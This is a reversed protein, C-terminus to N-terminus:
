LAEVIAQLLHVTGRFEDEGSDFAREVTFWFPEGAVLERDFAAEVEIVRNFEGSDVNRAAALRQNPLENPRFRGLSPAAFRIAFAIPGPEVGRSAEAMLVLRLRVRTGPASARFEARVHRGPTSAVIRRLRGQLSGQPETKGFRATFTPEGRGDISGFFARQDHNILDDLSGLTMLNEDNQDSGDPAFLEADLAFRHWAGFLRDQPLESDIELTNPATGLQRYRFLDSWNARMGRLPQDPLSALVQADFGGFRQQRGTLREPLYVAYAVVTEPLRTQIAESREWFVQGNNDAQLRLTGTEPDHEGRGGDQLIEWGQDSPNPREADRADYEFVLDCKDMPVSAIHALADGTLGTTRPRWNGSRWYDPAGHLDAHNPGLVIM